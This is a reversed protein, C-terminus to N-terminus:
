SPTSAYSPIVTNCSDMGDCVLTNPDSGGEHVLNHVFELHLRKQEQSFEHSCMDCAATPVRFHQSPPQFVQDLPTHTHGVPLRSVTVLEFVNNIPLM